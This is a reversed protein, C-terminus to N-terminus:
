VTLDGKPYRRITMRKIPRSPTIAKSRLHAFFPNSDIIADIRRDMMLRAVATAIAKKNDDTIM